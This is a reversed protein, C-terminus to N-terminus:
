LPSRQPGLSPMLLMESEGIKLQKQLSENLLPCTCSKQNVKEFIFGLANPPWGPQATSCLAISPRTLTPLVECRWPSGVQWGGESAPRGSCRAQQAQRRRLPQSTRGPRHAAETSPKSAQKSEKICIRM